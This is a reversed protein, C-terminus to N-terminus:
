KENGADNVKLLLPLYILSTFDFLKIKLKKRPSSVWSPFTLLLLLSCPCCSHQQCATGM